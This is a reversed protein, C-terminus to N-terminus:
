YLYSPHDTTINQKILEILLSYNIITSSPSKILKIKKIISTISRSFLIQNTKSLYNDNHQNVKTRKMNKYKNFLTQNILEINITLKMKDQSKIKM